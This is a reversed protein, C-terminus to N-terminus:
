PAAKKIGLFIPELAALRVTIKKGDVNVASSDVLRTESVAVPAEASLSVTQPEDTLNVLLTWTTEGVGYLRMGVAPEKPPNDLTINMPADVSLLIDFCDSIEQAIATLESWSQEFPKRVLPTRPEDSPERDMNWLDHWCYAILGNAGGAIGMWYM